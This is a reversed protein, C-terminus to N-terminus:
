RRIFLQGAHLPRGYLDYFQTDSMPHTRDPHVAPLADSYRQSIISFCALASDMLQRAYYDKGQEYLRPSAM